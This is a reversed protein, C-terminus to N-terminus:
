FNNSKYDQNYYVKNCDPCYGFIDIKEEDEIMLSYKLPVKIIKKSVECNHNVFNYSKAKEFDRAKNLIELVEQINKM